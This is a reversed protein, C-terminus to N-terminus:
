RSSREAALVTLPDVEVSIGLKRYTLRQTPARPVLASAPEQYPVVLAIPVDRDLIVIREGRRVSALDRSIHAKFESIKSTRM